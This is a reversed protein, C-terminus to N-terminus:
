RARRRGHVSLAFAGFRKRAQEFDLERAEESNFKLAGALWSAVKKEGSSLIGDAWAKEVASRYVRHKAERLDQASYEQPILGDHLVYRQGQSQIGRQIADVLSAVRAERDQDLFTTVASKFWSTLQKMDGGKNVPHAM